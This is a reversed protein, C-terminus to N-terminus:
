SSLLSFRKMFSKGVAIGILSGIIAGAIFDSFWHISVSVGLGIYLAYLLAFFKVKKSEPYMTILAFSLAFSVTTHSSPWGWFIGGRFFGFRFIHSIDTTAKVFVEMHGRGTFAKYTSSILWGLIAAQATAFAAIKAQANKRGKILLFIPVFVPVVFGFMAAPFMFNYLPGHNFYTYYSWDFGSTVIIYTLAIALLYWILNTGSFITLINTPFKYFIGKITNM